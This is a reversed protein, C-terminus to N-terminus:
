SARRAARGARPPAAGTGPRRRSARGPARSRAPAPSAPPEVLLDQGRAGRARERVLDAGRSPRGCNRLRRGRQLRAALLRGQHSAARLEGVEATREVVGPRPPSEDDGDGPLRSDALAPERAGQRRLGGPAAREDEDAAAVLGLLDQGRPAHTSGSRATGSPRRASARSPRPATQRTSTLRSRGPAPRRRAPGRGSARLAAARRPPRGARGAFRRGDAAHDEEQLVQLPRVLHADAEEGEEPPPDPLRRREQHDGHPVLVGLGRRQEPFVRSSSTWPSCAIRRSSCGATGPRCPPARARWRARGSPASAAPGASWSCTQRALSPLGKM